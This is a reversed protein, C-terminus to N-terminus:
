KRELVIQEIASPSTFIDYKTGPTCVGVKFLAEIRELAVRRPGIVSEIVNWPPTRMKITLLWKASPESPVVEDTKFEDLRSITQIKHLKPM